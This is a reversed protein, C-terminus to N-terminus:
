PIQGALEQDIVQQFVEYPQAGVLALGNIFFTPTSRIGLQSAFNYSNEVKSQFRRTTLCEDFKTADLSLDTAYKKYADAGLSQEATFLKDAFEWYKGQEGACHAAEAAATANQHLGELPFDRYVFRIKNPYAELLKTFVEDHWKRCYPCEYDSFEILTIPANAPGLTEEGDIPIDYRTPAAPTSNQAAPTKAQAVPQSAPAPANQAPHGWFLYGVSLGVVFALPLLVAYLHSRRFTISNNTVPDPPNPIKPPMDM